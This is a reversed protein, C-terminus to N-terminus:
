KKNVISDVSKIVEDQISKDGGVFINRDSKRASLHKKASDPVESNKVLVIPMNEYGSIQASILADEIKRGNAYVYGKPDSNFKTAILSATEYRDSGSVRSIKKNDNKFSNYIDSSISNEGGVLTINKSASLINMVDQTINKGNTLLIPIGNKAAIPAISVADVQSNGNALLIEKSGTLEILRNAIISSTEYKDKGNIRDIKMGASKLQAEQSKSISKDGGIIVVKKANLRKIENLISEPISSTNTYLIPAKLQKAYPTASITDSSKSGNTIIVTSAGNPYLSKSVEASTEIRDKGSIRIFHRKSNIDRSVVIDGIKYEDKNENENKMEVYKNNSRSSSHSSHSATVSKEAPKEAPKETPKETPKESPKEAPKEAVKKKVIINLSKNIKQGDNEITVDIKVIAENKGDEFIVDKANGVLSGDESVKLGNTEVSVIKYGELNPVVVNHENIDEGETITIDKSVVKLIEEDALKRYEYEVIPQQEYTKEMDPKKVLKYGQIIKAESGLEWTKFYDYCKIYETKAIEKKTQEDIYRVEAHKVQEKSYVHYDHLEKVGDTELTMYVYPTDIFNKGDIAVQIKYRKNPGIRGPPLVEVIQTNGNGMVGNKNTYAIASFRM